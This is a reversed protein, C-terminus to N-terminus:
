RRMRGSRLGYAGHSSLSFYLENTLEFDFHLLVPERVVGM